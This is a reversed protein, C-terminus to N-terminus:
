KALYNRKKRVKRKKPLQGSVSVSFNHSSSNELLLDPSTPTCILPKCPMTDDPLDAAQQPVICLLVV